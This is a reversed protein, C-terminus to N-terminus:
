RPLTLVIMGHDTPSSHAEAGTISERVVVEFPKFNAVFIETIDGNVGFGRAQIGVDVNPNTRSLCGWSACVRQEIVAAGVHAVPDDNIHWSTAFIATPGLLAEFNWTRRGSIEVAAGPAQAFTGDPEVLGHSFGERPGLQWPSPAANDSVNSGIKLVYGPVSNAALLVATEGAQLQVGRPEPFFKRDDPFGTGGAVNLRWEFSYGSFMDRDSEYLYFRTFQRVDRYTTWNQGELITPHEVTLFIEMATPAEFVIRGWGSNVPTVAVAGDTPLVLVAEQPIEGLALTVPVAGVLLALATTAAPFSIWRVTRLFFVM